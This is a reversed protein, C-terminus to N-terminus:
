CDHQEVVIFNHNNLEGLQKIFNKVLVNHHSSERFSIKFGSNIYKKFKNFIDSYNNFEKKEDPSLDKLRKNFGCHDLYHRELEDYTSITHCSEDWDRDTPEFILSNLCLKIIDKFNNDKLETDIMGIIDKHAIIYSSSSSNTIFDTKIKM